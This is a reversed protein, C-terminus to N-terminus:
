VVVGCEGGSADGGGVDVGKQGRQQQQPQSLPSPDALAARVQTVAERLATPESRKDNDDNGAAAAVCGLLAEVAGTLALCHGELARAWLAADGKEQRCICM